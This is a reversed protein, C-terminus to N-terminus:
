DRSENRDSSVSNNNLAGPASLDVSRQRGMKEGMRSGAKNTKKRGQKEMGDTEAGARQEARRREEILTSGASKTEQDIWGERNAERNELRQSHATEASAASFVLVLVSPFLWMRYGAM